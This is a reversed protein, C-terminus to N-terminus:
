ELTEKAKQLQDLDIMGEDLAEAITKFPWEGEPEKGHFFVYADKTFPRYGETVVTLLGSTVGAEICDDCVEKAKAEPKLRFRPDDRTVLYIDTDHDSGYHCIIAYEGTHRRKLSAACRDAQTCPMGFKDADWLPRYRKGCIQCCVKKRDRMKKGM